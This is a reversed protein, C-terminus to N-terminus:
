LFQQLPEIRSSAAASLGKRNKYIKCKMVCTKGRPPNCWNQPYFEACSCCAPRGGMETRCCVGLHSNFFNDDACSPLKCNPSSCEKNNEDLCKYTEIYDPAQGFWETGGEWGATSCKGASLGGCAWWPKLTCTDKVCCAGEEQYTVSEDRVYGNPCSAPCATRTVCSKGDETVQGEPCAQCSCDSGRFIKGQALCTKANEACFKGGKGCCTVQRAMYRQVPGAGIGPNIPVLDDDLGIDPKELEPTVCEGKVYIQGGKCPNGVTEMNGIPDYALLVAQRFTLFPDQQYSATQQYSIAMSYVDTCTGSAQGDCAYQGLSDGNCTDQPAGSVSAGTGYQDVCAIECTQTQTNWAEGSGCCKAQNPNCECGEPDIDCPGDPRREVDPVVVDTAVCEDPEVMISSCSPYSKNLASCGEGECCLQGSKYSPIKLVYDKGARSASVGTETLTYTYNASKAQGNGTRAYAVTPINSFNGTYNQGLNCRKEQETRVAALMREAETTRRTELVRSFKPVAVASLVGLVIVVVLLETLTFAKKKLFKM